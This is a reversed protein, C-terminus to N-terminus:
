HSTQMQQLCQGITTYDPDNSLYPPGEAQPFQVLLNGASRLDSKVQAAYAVPKAGSGDKLASAVAAELGQPDKFFYLMAAPGNPTSGNGMAFYGYGNLAAPRSYDENLLNGAMNEGVGPNPETTYAGGASVCNEFGSEDTFVGSSAAAAQQAPTGDPNTVQQAFHTCRGVVPSNPCSKHHSVHVPHASHSAGSAASPHGNKSGQNSRALPPRAATIPRRPKASGGSTLILILAVVLAILCGGGVGAKWRRTARDDSARMVKTEDIASGASDGGLDSRQERGSRTM